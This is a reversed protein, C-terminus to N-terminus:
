ARLTALVTKYHSHPGTDEYDIAMAKRQKIIELLTLSEFESIKRPEDVRIYNDILHRMDAEYDQGTHYVGEELLEGNIVHPAFQAVEEFGSDAMIAGVGIAERGPLGPHAIVM